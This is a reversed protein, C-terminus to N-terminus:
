EFRWLPKIINSARANDTREHALRRRRHGRPRLFVSRVSACPNMMVSRNNKKIARPGTSKLRIKRMSLDHSERRMGTLGLDDYM